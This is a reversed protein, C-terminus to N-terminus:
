RMMKSLKPISAIVVLAMVFTFCAIFLFQCFYENAQNPMCQTVVHSVNAILSSLYGGLAVFLLACGMMTGKMGAPALNSIATYIAPTIVLEGASLLLIGIIIGSLIAHTLSSIAFVSIGLAALILGTALKTIVNIHIGRNKLNSWLYTTIPALLLVFLPYFTSFVSAPLPMRLAGQKINYEIFLTITSGIQLGAIFYFMGFFSIILLAIVHQREINKQKTVAFLLYIISISFLTIILINVMSPLYFTVSILLCAAIIALYLSIKKGSELSKVKHNHNEWLYRSNLFWLTALLVGLASCLFVFRWGINYAVLGYIVPGLVGGLNVSLYLLTFGREKQTSRDQYLSGVLHMANSKYLGFGVLSAAIGLCFLYHNSTVLLLNGLISLSSGTIVASKYGLWRDATIGGLIPLAYAFATYAGYLLYSDSRTLQFVHMFYLVLITQTGYYSFTSWHEGFALPWFAKPQKFLM